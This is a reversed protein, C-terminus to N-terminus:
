LGLQLKLLQMKLEPNKYNSIAEDFNNFQNGLSAMISKPMEKRVSIYNYRGNAITIIYKTNKVFIEKTTYNQATTM